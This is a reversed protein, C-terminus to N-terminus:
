CVRATSAPISRCCTVSAACSCRPASWCRRGVRCDSRGRAGPGGSTGARGGTALRDQAGARSRCSRGDADARRQLDARQPRRRRRPFGRRALRYRSRARSSGADDGSVDRACGGVVEVPRHDSRRRDGRPCPRRHFATARAPRARLGARHARRTRAVTGLRRCAVPQAVTACGVLSCCCRWARCSSSRSASSIASRRSDQRAPSSRRGARSSDSAARRSFGDPGGTAQLVQPWMVQLEANSQQLSVGDRLRAMFHLWARGRQALVDGDSPRLRQALTVPVTIAPARGPAVGFFGPATVGVITIPLGQVTVVKGIAAPDAGFRRQWAATASSALRRRM